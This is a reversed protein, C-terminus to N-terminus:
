NITLIEFLSTCAAAGRNAPTTRLVGIEVQNGASSNKINNVTEENLSSLDLNVVLNDGVRENLGNGRDLLNNFDDILSQNGDTVLLGDCTIQKDGWDVTEYTFYYGKLNAFGEVTGVNIGGATVYMCGNISCKEIRQHTPSYDSETPFSELNEKRIEENKAINAESYERRATAEKEDMLLNITNTLETKLQSNQSYLSSVLVGSAILLSLLVFIAVRMPKNKDKMVKTTSTPSTKPKETKIKKIKKM